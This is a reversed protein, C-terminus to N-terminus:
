QLLLPARALTGIAAALVQTSLDSSEQVRGGSISVSAMAATEAVGVHPAHFHCFSLALKPYLDKLWTGESGCQWHDCM